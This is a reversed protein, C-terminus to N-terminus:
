RGLWFSTSAQYLRVARGVAVAVTVQGQNIRALTATLHAPVRPLTDIAYTTSPLAFLHTLHGDVDVSLADHLLFLAGGPMDVTPFLLAGLHASSLTTPRRTSKTQTGALATSLSVLEIAATPEDVCYLSLHEDDLMLEAPAPCTDLTRPALTDLRLWDAVEAIAVVGDADWALIAPASGAALRARFSRVAGGPAYSKATAVSPIGGDGFAVQYAGIRETTALVVALETASTAVVRAGITPAEGPALRVVGYSRPSSSLGVVAVAGDNYGVLAYRGIPLTGSPALLRFTSVSVITTNPRVVVEVPASTGGASVAVNGNALGLALWEDSFALAVIDSGVDAPSPQPVFAADMAPSWVESEVGGGSVKLEYRDSAVPIRLAVMREIETRLDETVHDVVSFTTEGPRKLLVDWESIGSRQWRLRAWWFNPQSILNGNLAIAQPAPTPGPNPGPNPNPDPNPNSNSTPDSTTREGGDNSSPSSCAACVLSLSSALVIPALRNM